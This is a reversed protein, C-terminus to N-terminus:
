LLSYNPAITHLAMLKACQTLKQYFAYQNYMMHLNNRTCFTSIYIKQSNQINYNLQSLDINQTQPSCVFSGIVFKMYQREHVFKYVTFWKNVVKEIEM